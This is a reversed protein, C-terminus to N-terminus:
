VIVSRQYVIAMGSVDSKGLCLPIDWLQVLMKPALVDTLSDSPAKLVAGLAQKRIAAAIFAVKASQKFVGDTSGQNDFNIGGQVETM